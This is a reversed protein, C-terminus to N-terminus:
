KYINLAKKTRNKVCRFKANRTQGLKCKKVCKNTALNLDKDKPCVKNIIPDLSAFLDLEKSLSKSKSASVLKKNVTKKNVTKKNVTKKNVTKKNVTKKNVLKKNVVLQTEFTKKLRTLVGTELLINEYENILNDINIERTEPNFSYMKEFFSSLRTFFDLDIANHRYFCNLIYKLTFGMGYVDISDVINNLVYNYDNSKILHNFGDFFDDIYKYVTSNPPIEGDPNLYSFLINFSDPNRIPMDFTNQKTKEMIMESLQSKYTQRRASSLRQYATYKNKDMFACSFPYSWHYIGLFNDSKKSSKIIDSKLRMLGFDIFILKGTKMDFLINQPKIDNHVLGNDKLFKLGKLLHHVELWFKDTKSKAKTKSGISLYKTLKTDCLSKLDPGGFKMLLIKYNNPKSKVEDSEINKCNSIEKIIKNDLNPQCLIPAGLHFENTKDYEGIVLFEKLESKANKTTMIKSVYEKYDAEPFVNNNCHLSPRHVCGYSGEGLVSGKINSKINM